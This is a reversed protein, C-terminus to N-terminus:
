RQVYRSQWWICRPVMAMAVRSTVPLGTAGARQDLSVLLSLLFQVAVTLVVMMFYSFGVRSFFRKDDM